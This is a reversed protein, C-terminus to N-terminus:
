RALRRLARWEGRTTIPFDYFSGGISGSRKTAAVYAEAEAKTGRGGLGGIPHVPVNPKGTRERITNVNNRIFRRVATRGSVRFTYYVMPMFVDFHRAAERYPFNPWYLAGAEPVIAGMKYDNRVRNRIRTALTSFRRNRRGIDRVVTAEIDLAFSDFRQGDATQFRIAKLTRRLDKKLNAFAPVYWAVVAIDKEHAARIFTALARPRFLDNKKQYNSTELYLTTVGKRAMSEVAKRPHNWVGKDFMDIWAGLDRYAAIGDAALPLEADRAKGSDGSKSIARPNETEILLAMPVFANAPIAVAMSAVLM